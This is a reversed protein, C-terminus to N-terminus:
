AVSSRPSLEGAVTAGSSFVAMAEGHGGYTRAGVVESQAVGFHKALESQLRTSDLAALTTVQEPRLGSHILTVLGTIDAPTSSSSSTVFM